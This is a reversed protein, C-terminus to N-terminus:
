SEEGEEKIMIIFRVITFKYREFHTCFYSSEQFLGEGRSFEEEIVVFSIVRERERLIVRRNKELFFRFISIQAM